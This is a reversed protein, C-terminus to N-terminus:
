AQEQMISRMRNCGGEFHAAVAKRAAAGDGAEYADMIAKHERMVESSPAGSDSRTLLLRSQLMIVHLKAFIATMAPNEAGDIIAQHFEADADTFRRYERYRTGLRRVSTMKQYAATLAALTKANRKPAALEACHGEWLIRFQFLGIVYDPEQLPVVSYGAFLELRVLGEQELRALAERIPTSSVGFERALADINLRSSPPRTGDIISEKLQEHLQEALAVRVVARPPSSRTAMSQQTTTAPNASVHLGTGPATVRTSRIPRIM